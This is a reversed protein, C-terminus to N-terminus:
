QDAALAKLSASIRLGSGFASGDAGRGIVFNVVDGESLVLTRRYTASASPSLFRGFVQTANHTVHFDTDGQPSGPYVPSVEAEVRYPGAKGAPVSFRIVGYNEPQGDDGPYFWV